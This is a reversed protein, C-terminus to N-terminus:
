QGSGRQRRKLLVGAAVLGLLALTGPEPVQQAVVVNTFNDSTGARTPDGPAKSTSFESFCVATYPADCDFADPGLVPSFYIGTLIEDYIEDTDGGEGIEHLIDPIPSTGVPQAWSILWTILGSYEIGQEPQFETGDIPAFEGEEEDEAYVGRYEVCQGDVAYAVCTYNSFDPPFTTGAPLYNRFFALGFPELVTDVTIRLLHEFGFFATDYLYYSVNDGPFFNRCVVGDGATGGVGNGTDVPFDDNSGTFGMDACLPGASAPGAFAVLCAFVCVAVITRRLAVIRPGVSM